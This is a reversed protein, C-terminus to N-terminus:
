SLEAARELRRRPRVPALHLVPVRPRWNRLTHVVTVGVPIFLPSLVMMFISIPLFYEM